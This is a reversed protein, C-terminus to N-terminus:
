PNVARVFFCLPHASCGLRSKFDDSTQGLHVCTVGSRFARDLERYHLNFYGDIEGNRAYDIGVYLNHCEGGFTLAFVWAIVDDGCRVITMTADDGFRRGLEHFFQRPFTEMRYKARDRVNLYLRHLPETMAQAIQAGAIYRVSCGARSFKTLSQKVQSRYSSKLKARYDEFNQFGADLRRACPVDGVIYGLQELTKFEDRQATEFEKMVILRAKHARALTRMLEDLARLVAGRDVAPAIRLHNDASPAPLGCFLVNFRMFRPFARRITRTIKQVTPGTTELADVRFLCLCASAIPQQHEDRFIVFWCRCQDIMTSQFTALLRRDMALDAPDPALAAWDHPPVDDIRDYVTPTCIM